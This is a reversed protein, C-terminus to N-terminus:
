LHLFSSVKSIMTIFAPAAIGIISVFEDYSPISVTFANYGKGNLAAIMM